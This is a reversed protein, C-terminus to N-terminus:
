QGAGATGVGMMKLRKILLQDFNKLFSDFLDPQDRMAELMQYADLKEIQEKLDSTRAVAEPSLAWGCKYCHDFTPANVTHCNPCPRPRIEDVVDEKAVIGAKSLYEADIDDEGLRVYVEFMDTKLNGWM